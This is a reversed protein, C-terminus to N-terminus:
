TRSVPRVSVIAYKKGGWNAQGRLTKASLSVPRGTAPDACTATDETPDYELAALFHDGGHDGNHDVHVVMPYRQPDRLTKQVHAVDIVIEGLTLGLARALTAQVLGAGIYAKAKCAIANTTAPTAESNVGLQRQLEAYVTLLCGSKRITTTSSGLPM